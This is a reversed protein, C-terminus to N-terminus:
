SYYVSILIAFSINPAPAHTSLYVHSDGSIGVVFIASKPHSDLYIISFFRCAGIYVFM